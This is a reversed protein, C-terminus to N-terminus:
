RDRRTAAEKGTYKVKVTEAAGVHQKNLEKIMDRTQEERESKKSEMHYFVSKPVDLNPKITKEYERHKGAKRYGDAGGSHTPFGAQMFVGIDDLAKADHHDPHSEDNKASDIYAKAWSEFLQYPLMGGEEREGYEKWHDKELLGAFSWNSFDGPMGQLGSNSNMTHLFKQRDISGHHVQLWLVYRNRLFTQGVEWQQLGPMSRQYDGLSINGLRTKMKESMKIPKNGHFVNHLFHNRIGHMSNCFSFGHDILSIDGNEPNVVFNAAHRDNNNTIIDFVAIDMLKDELEKHKAKPTMSKLVEFDNQAAIEPDLKKNKRLSHIDSVGEKWAQVSHETGNENRIVTVPVLDMGHLASVLHASVERQANKRPTINGSGFSGVANKAYLDFDKTVEKTWTDDDPKYEWGSPDKPKTKSVEIDKYKLTNVQPKMIGSGNGQILVKYTDSANDGDLRKKSAIDGDRLHTAVVHRPKPTKNYHSAEPDSIPPAQGKGEDNKAKLQRGLGAPVKWSNETSGITGKPANPFDKKSLYVIDQTSGTGKPIRPITKAESDAKVSTKAGEAVTNSSESVTKAQTNNAPRGPGAENGPAALGAVSPPNKSAKVAPNEPKRLAKILDSISQFEGSM